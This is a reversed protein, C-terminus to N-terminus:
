HILNPIDLFQKLQIGEFIENIEDSYNIFKVENMCSSFCSKMSVLIHLFFYDAQKVHQFDVIIKKNDSIDSCQEKYNQLIDFDYQEPIVFVCTEMSNM